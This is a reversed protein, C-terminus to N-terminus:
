MEIYQSSRDDFVIFFNPRFQKNPIKDPTVSAAMHNEHAIIDWRGIPQEMWKWLAVVKPVGPRYNDLLKKLVDHREVGPARGYYLMVDGVRWKEVYYVEDKWSGWSEFSAVKVTTRDEPVTARAGDNQGGILVIDM